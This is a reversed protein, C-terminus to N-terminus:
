INVYVHLHLWSKTVIFKESTLSKDIKYKRMACANPQKNYLNHKKSVGNPSCDSAIILPVKENGVVEDYEGQRCLSIRLSYVLM